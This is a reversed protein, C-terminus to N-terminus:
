AQNRRASAALRGTLDRLSLRVKEMTPWAPNRPIVVWDFGPPLEQQSLRFAERIVRKWRNRRIAKGVRRSVSLGLRSHELGNSLGFVLLQGDRVARRAQFVRQFQAGQTLRLKKPLGGQSM